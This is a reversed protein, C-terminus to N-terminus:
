FFINQKLKKDMDGDEAFHKWMQNSMELTVETSFLSSRFCKEAEAQENRLRPKSFSKRPERKEVETVQSVSFDSTSM